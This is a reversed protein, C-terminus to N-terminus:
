LQHKCTAFALPAAAAYRHGSSLTEAAVAKVSLVKLLKLLEEM